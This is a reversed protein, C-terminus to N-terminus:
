VPHVPRRVEYRKISARVGVFHPSDTTHTSNIDGIERQGGITTSPHDLHKLGGQIRAHGSIPNEEGMRVILERIEKMVGPRGVGERPHTWKSAILRRHWELITDPTVITAITELVKRGLPKGKASLRRRHDDTLHLRKGSSGLQEKHVRNEEILYTSVAAQQRGIWGTFAALLLQLHITEIM